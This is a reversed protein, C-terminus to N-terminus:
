EKKEPFVGAFVKCAVAIAEQPCLKQNLALMICASHALTLRTEHDLAQLIKEHEVHSLM